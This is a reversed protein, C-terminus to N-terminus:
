RGFIPRGGNELQLLSLRRVAYNWSQSIHVDTLIQKRREALEAAPPVRLSAGTAMLQLQARCAEELWVGYMTMAEITQGCFTAGHNAMIVASNSGLARALSAGLEPTKILVASDNFVPMPYEFYNAEIVLPQLSDEMASVLCVARPHTHAVANVDPRAKFIEAHIPWESHRGGKGDLVEGSQLDLLLFDDPGMIEGLGVANRKMWFGRGDPDRFSLHGLTFDGHGFMELLRCATALKELEDHLVDSV